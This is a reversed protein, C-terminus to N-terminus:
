GAAGVAIDLNAEDANGTAFAGWKRMLDIRPELLDSRQYAAHVADGSVHHLARKYVQEAAVSKEAAWDTFTSRFGHVTFHPLELKDRVKLALTRMANESMTKQGSKRSSPAPFLFGRKAKYSPLEELVELMAPSLPVRHDGNGSIKIRDAPIHWIGQELDIEEWHAGLAEGTRVATLITWRLALATISSKAQLEEMVAPLYKRGLSAHRNAKRAKVPKEPLSALLFDDPAAPNHITENDPDIGFQKFVRAVYTRTRDATEWKESWLDDKTLMRIIDSRKVELLPIDGIVPNAYTRLYREIQVLTREVINGAKRRQAIYQEAYEAFTVGERMERVTAVKEQSIPDTGDKAMVRYHAAVARAKAPLLEKAIEERMVRAGEKSRLLGMQRRKGNIVYRLQWSKTGSPSVILYLGNGDPYKGPKAKRYQTDTLKAHKTV